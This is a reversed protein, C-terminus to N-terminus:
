EESPVSLVAEVGCKATSPPIPMSCKTLREKETYAPASDPWQLEVSFSVSQSLLSDKIDRLVWSRSKESVQYRSYLCM